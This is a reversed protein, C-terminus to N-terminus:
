RNSRHIRRLEPRPAPDRSMAALAESYNQWCLCSLLWNHGNVTVYGERPTKVRPAHLTQIVKHLASWLIIRNLSTCNIEEARQKTVTFSLSNIISQIPYGSININFCFSKRSIKYFGVCQVHRPTPCHLPPLTHRTEWGPPGHSCHGTHGTVLTRHQAAPSLYCTGIIVVRHLVALRSM